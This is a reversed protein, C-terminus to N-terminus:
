KRIIKVEKKVGDNGINFLTVQRIVDDLDFLLFDGYNQNNYRGLNGAVSVVTDAREDVGVYTKHNHGSLFLIPAIEQLCAFMCLEPVGANKSPPTHTLIVSVDSCCTLYKYSDYENLRSLLSLPIGVPVSATAGGYGVFVRGDIDLRKSHINEDCLFDDICLGDWNGPVLVSTIGDRNLRGLIDKIERYQERMKERGLIVLALYKCAADRVKEPFRGNEKSLFSALDYYNRVRGETSKYVKEKVDSLVEVSKSYTNILNDNIVNGVLDGTIALVNPRCDSIVDLARGFSEFDGYIDSVHAIKM